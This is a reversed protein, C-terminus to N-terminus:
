ANMGKQSMYTEKILNLLINRDLKFQEPDDEEFQRNEVLRYGVSLANIMSALHVDILAGLFPYRKCAPELKSIYSDVEAMVDIAKGRIFDMEEVTTGIAECVEREERFM